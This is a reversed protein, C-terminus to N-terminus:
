RVLASRNVPAVTALPPPDWLVLALRLVWCAHDSAASEPDLTASTVTFGPLATVVGSPLRKRWSGDHQPVDDTYRGDSARGYVRMPDLLLSAGNARRDLNVASLWWRGAYELAVGIQVQRTTERSALLRAFFHTPVQRRRSELVVSATLPVIGEHDSALLSGASPSQWDGTTGLVVRIPIGAAPSQDSRRLTLQADLRVPRTTPIQTM